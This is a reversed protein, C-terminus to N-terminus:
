RIELGGVGVVPKKEHNNGTWPPAIHHPPSWLEPQAIPIRGGGVRMAQFERLLYGVQITSM